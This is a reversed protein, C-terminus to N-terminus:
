NFYILTFLSILAEREKPYARGKSIEADAFQLAETKLKELRLAELESKLELERESFEPEQATSDGESNDEQKDENKEESLKAEAEALKTEAESLKAEAEEKAQTVLALKEKIEAEEVEKDIKEFDTDTLNGTRLAWSDVGSEMALMRDVLQEKGMELSFILVPVKGIQAVNRALNLVFATKGM